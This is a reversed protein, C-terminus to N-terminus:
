RRPLRSPRTTASIVFLGLVLIVSLVLIPSAAVLLSEFM